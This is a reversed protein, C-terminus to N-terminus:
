SYIIKYYVKRDKFFPNKLYISDDTPPITVIVFGIDKFLKIYKYTAQTDIYLEQRLDETTWFPKSEQLTKLILYVERAPKKKPDKFKQDPIKYYNIDM